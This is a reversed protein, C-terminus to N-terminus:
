LLTLFTFKYQQTPAGAIVKDVQVRRSHTPNHPDSQRILPPAAIVAGALHVGRHQSVRSAWISETVINIRKRCATLSDPWLPLSHKEPRLESTWGRGGSPVPGSSCDDLLFLISAARQQVPPDVSCVPSVWTLLHKNKIYRKIYHRKVSFMYWVVNIPRANWLSVILFQM